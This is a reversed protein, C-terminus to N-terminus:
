EKGVNLVQKIALNTIFRDYDYMVTGHLSGFDSYSFSFCSNLNGIQCKNVSELYVIASTNAPVLKGVSSVGDDEVISVTFNENRTYHSKLSNALERVVQNAGRVLVICIVFRSRLMREDSSIWSGGLIFPVEIV